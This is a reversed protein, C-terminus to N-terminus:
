TGAEKVLATILELLKRHVVPNRGGGSGPICFEVSLSQHNEQDALELIVDGDSQLILKMHTSEGMDGEIGEIV